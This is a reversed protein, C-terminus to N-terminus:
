VWGPDYGPKIYIWRYHESSVVYEAEVPNLKIYRILRDLNEGPGVRKCKYRGQFVHGKLRHRKNFYVTYSTMLKQMYKSITHKNGQRIVFHFHNNMLCYAVIDLCCEKASAYKLLRRVIFAKDEELFFIPMQRNGRNYVHYYSGPIFEPRKRRPM